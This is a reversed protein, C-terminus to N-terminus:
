PLSAGATAAPEAGGADPPVAVPPPVALPAAGLVVRLGAESRGLAEAGLVATWAREEGPALPQLALAGASADLAARLADPGDLRLRREDPALGARWRLGPAAGELALELAAGAAAPASGPNRLTGSAVLLPGAVANDVIRLRAGVVSLPGLAADPLVRSAPSPPRPALSVLAILLLLLAAASWRVTDAGRLRAPRAADEAAPTERAAAARAGEAGTREPAAALASPAPPATASAAPAEAAGAGARPAPASAVGFDWSEPSGMADLAEDEAADPQAGDLLPAQGVVSRRARRPEAVPAAAAEPENFTWDEEDAASPAPPSTDLDVTAPPPAAVGRQAAEAAVAHLTDAADQGPRQVVFAHKCRSCRVRIGTAPVRADDLQFRTKCRECAVIM